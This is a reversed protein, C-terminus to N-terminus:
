PWICPTDLLNNERAYIACTVPDDAAIANLPQSTVEGTEWKVMVNTAAVMTTTICGLFHVRMLQSRAFSGSQQIKRRRDYITLSIM